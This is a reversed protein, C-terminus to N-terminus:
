IHYGIFTKESYMRKLLYSVTTHAQVGKILHIDNRKDLKFRSKVTNIIKNAFGLGSGIIHLHWGSESEIVSFHLGNGKDEFAKSIIDAYKLSMTVPKITILFLETDVMKQKLIEILETKDKRNQTNHNYMRVSGALKALREQENADEISKKRDYKMSNPSSTSGLSAPFGQKKPNPSLSAPFGQKKSNPSSAPFGNTNNTTTKMTSKKLKKCYFAM